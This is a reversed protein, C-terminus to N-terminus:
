LAEIVMVTGNADLRKGSDELLPKNQLLGFQNGIHVKLDHCGDSLDDKTMGRIEAKHEKSLKAMLINVAQDVTRPWLSPDCIGSNNRM